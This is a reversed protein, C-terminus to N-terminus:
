LGLRKVRTSGVTTEFTKNQVLFFDEFKAVKEVLLVMTIKFAIVSVDFHGYVSPRLGKM